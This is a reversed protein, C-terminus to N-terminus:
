KNPWKAWISCHGGNDSGQLEHEVFAIAANMIAFPAFHLKNNANTIFIKGFHGQSVGHGSEHLAVTEVDIVNFMDAGSVAWNFANNYYTERFAVDLKKDNNIDLFNGQADTMLLTFTAALIFESGDEAILDFFGGPLFGAHIYDVLVDPGLNLLGLGGFQGPPDSFLFDVVDPDIGPDAVKVIPITSCQVDDWTQMARDIAAETQAPSLTSTGAGNAAADSLDVLYRIDRRDGRQPDFPAFHFALQKARDNAFVTQGAGDFGLYEAMAIRVNLGRAAAKDNLRALVPSVTGEERGGTAGGGASKALDLDGAAGDASPASPEDGCAAAIACALMVAALRSRPTM